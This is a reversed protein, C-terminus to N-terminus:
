NFQQMHSGGDGGAADDVDEVKTLRLRLDRMGIKTTLLDFDWNNLEWLKGM